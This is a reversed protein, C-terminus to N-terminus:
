SPILYDTRLRWFPEREGDPGTPIVYRIEVAGDTVIVRDILLELLERKRDFDARELGERVRHCFAEAHAALRATEEHRGADQMLEHEQGELARLRAETERRRREYEALPLFPEIISWEADTLDTQYRTTPRSYKQRTTPTWM